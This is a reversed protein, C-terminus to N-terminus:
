FFSVSKKIEKLFRDFYGKGRGKRNGEKDFKTGPIFFIDIDEKQFPIINKSELIGYTSIKLDSIDKLISLKLSYDKINCIPTIITKKLKILKKIIELTNIEDKKSIFMFISKKDKCEELIKKEFNNRM